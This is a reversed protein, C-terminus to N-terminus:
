ASEAVETWNLRRSSSSGIPCSVWVMLLTSTGFTPVDVTATGSSGSWPVVGARSLASLEPM